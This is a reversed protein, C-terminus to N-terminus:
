CILIQKKRRESNKVKVLSSHSSGSAASRGTIEVVQPYISWASEVCCSFFFGRGFFLGTCRTSGSSTVGQLRCRKPLGDGMMWRSLLRGIGRCTSGDGQDSGEADPGQLPQKKPFRQTSVFPSSTWNVTIPKVM